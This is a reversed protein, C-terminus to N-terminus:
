VKGKREIPKWAKNRKVELLYAGPSILDALNFAEIYTGFDIFILRKSIMFFRGIKRPKIKHKVSQDTVRINEGMKIDFTM